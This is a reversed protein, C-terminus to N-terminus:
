RLAAQRASCPVWRGRRLDRPRPAVPMVRTFMRTLASTRPEPTLARVNVDVSPVALLTHLRLVCSLSLRAATEGGRM